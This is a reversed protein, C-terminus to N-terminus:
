TLIEFAREDSADKAALRPGVSAIHKDLKNMLARRDHLQEVSLHSALEMNPVAYDARNPDHDITLPDHAAGLWGGFQGQSQEVFRPVDGPVKPRMQVLRPLSGEGRGLASLTAGVHPWQDLKDGSRPPPQGTLLYHTSTTHNVDSHTMSRVICLKDTRSALRPFHEGIQIGPVKTQIPRFEGRVERPAEPKLDWTELQSPGGWMFLLICRKARGFSPPSPNSATTESERTIGNLLRPLSLGLLPVGGLRLLERRIVSTRHFNSCGNPEM